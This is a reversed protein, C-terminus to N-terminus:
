FLGISYNFEISDKCEQAVRILEAKRIELYKQFAEPDYAGISAYVDNEDIKALQKDLWAQQAENM